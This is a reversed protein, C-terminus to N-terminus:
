SKISLVNNIDKVNPYIKIQLIPNLLKNTSKKYIFSSNLVDRSLIYQRDTLNYYELMNERIVILMDKMNIKDYWLTETPTTFGLLYYRM